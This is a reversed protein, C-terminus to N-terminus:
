IESLVDFMPWSCEPLKQMDRSNDVQVNIYGPAAGGGFCPHPGPSREATPTEIMMVDLSSWLPWVFHPFLEPREM